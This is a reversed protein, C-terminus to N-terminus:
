TTHPDVGQLNSTCTANIKMSVEYKREIQGYDVLFIISINLVGVLHGTLGCAQPILCSRDRWRSRCLKCSELLEQASRQM